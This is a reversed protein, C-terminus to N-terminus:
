NLSARFLGSKVAAFKLVAPSNHIPLSTFQLLQPLNYIEERTKFRIEGSYLDSAKDISGVQETNRINIIFMNAGRKIKYEGASLSEVREVCDASHLGGSNTGRFELRPLPTM